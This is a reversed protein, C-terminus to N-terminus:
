RLVITLAGADVAAAVASASAPSVEVLIVRSTSQLLGGGTGEPAAVVRADSAVTGVKGAGILDIRSGPRLLDALAADQVPISMVVYGERALATGTAVSASTIPSRATVPANIVEGVFVSADGSAGGPVVEPPMFVRMLDTSLLTTGGPLDRAAVVVPVTVVRPPTLADLGIFVAVFAATAALLRRRRRLVRVLSEVIRLM